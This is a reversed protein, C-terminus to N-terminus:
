KDWTQPCQDWIVTKKDLFISSAERDQPMTFAFVSGNTPLWKFTIHPLMFNLWGMQKIAVLHKFVLYQILVIIIIILTTKIFASLEERGGTWWLACGLMECM